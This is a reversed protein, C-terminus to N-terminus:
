KKGRPEPQRLSAPTHVLEDVVPCCADGGAEDLAQECEAVYSALTARFARMRRIREDVERLKESMLDHVHQCNPSGGAELITAIEDLSFGLEQAQKIFHIREVADANFLRFGGQTRGASSLLRRREYFRITDISVGTREAVVGIQFGKQNM